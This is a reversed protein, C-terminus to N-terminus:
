APPADGRPVFVADVFRAGALGDDLDLYDKRFAAYAAAHEQEVEDLHLLREAVEATTDVLPGPATPEFDFLWGRTDKYRQLDPVHFIMPKGTVGFDFRLSSYDVVAADAALYLDSVEPYDTVEICGPLRGVRASSRANFAHGRVLIAFDDGLARHAEAFDFFDAMVAHSDHAALYDRFTPAYLVATQGEEIGLSERTRRRIEDAEDSHLVDNRPYGIELVEGPYNFDRQLLPTAYRAPSVLYDWDRARRDYAEIKERSFQLNEWHPHGMQKFPYGHFTQVLVQGEAKRHYEPQYMNDIYYKVTFVLDYWEPSNVVVPIGGNPVPISKDQVAWYVPLDSGRRQLEKQISIGNDTAQEGFYSRMLVGRTLGSHTPGQLRLQNQQYRGRGAGLPRQLTVRVVAEPGRVVRGELADTAIGLPLHVGLEASVLLPVEFAPGDGDRVLLSLDHDGTPLPHLGFRHVEHALEVSARFRGERVPTEAGHARTRKNRTAIGVAPSGPGFVRGVVSLVGDASVEIEDATAGRSWETVVLGGNRDTELVLSGSTAAIRSGAEPLVDVREGDRTWASLHWVRAVGPAPPPRQPLEVHFGGTRDVTAEASGEGAVVVRDIRAADEPVLRGSLVRGSLDVQSATANGRDVRLRLTQHHHWDAILRGGRGLPAAPVAGAAGSRILRTVPHEVTLGAASVQLWVSWVGADEAEDLYSLSLEAAFRGPSYDCWLDERPPAYTPKPRGTSPFSRVEGTAENRLQVTVEADHKALDVKRLYAWGSIACTRSGDPQDVWHLNEVAHSIRLQHPRVLFLSDDLEPDGLLPLELLIGDERVTAPWQEPKVGGRRVFEQADARRDLQALRTLVRAAPPTHDWAWTSADATLSRVAAVLENWYQDDVTGPSRLYWQFHAALLTQIWGEYVRSSVEAHFVERSVQWAEIRDRLDKLSATQQSISSQDDRARYRYVIEPLVDIAHARALLQTVIPQDEYAVGERFWMGQADWFDRRFLKNWTYLNRLLPLFEEIRVQERRVVHVDEVWDPLWGTRGDFREVSGVVVDSGTRCASGHLLALAQPPLLDDSDVFTLYRGRAERVGTNRAAGLGGNERTVIRLRADREAYREAIARSGDPSGDDVLLVEFDGFTQGLISDLCDALYAEVNYFPVIVSIEPTRLRRVLSRGPGTRAALRAGRRALERPRGRFRSLSSMRAIM